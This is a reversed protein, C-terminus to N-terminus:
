QVRERECIADSAAGLARGPCPITEYGAKVCAAWRRNKRMPSAAGGFVGGNEQSKRPDTAANHRAEWELERVAADLVSNKAWALNAMDSPRGGSLVSRFMGPWAADPVVRGFRRRGLYLVWENGNRKWQLKAGILAPKNHTHPKFSRNPDHYM